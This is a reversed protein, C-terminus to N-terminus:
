WDFKDVIEKGVDFYQEIVKKIVDDGREGNTFLIIGRKSKPLLIIITHSGFDDGDHMIAFEGNSLDSMIDWGLGFSEYKTVYSQPRIMENYLEVSLGNGKMVDVAFKGYDAITTKLFDSASAELNKPIDIEQGSTDHPFAYRTIDIKNSWIYRTDSMDLPKFLVSDALEELTMKFKNQLANKLYEFGEGSYKFKTGPNFNFTLKKTKNRWRWNDFGSQHTLIHRTTLYFHNSDNVVDPDTWYKYIPEDLEWKGSSILKLTVMATVPKTLSAIQFISNYPAPKNEKLNGITLIQNLEGNNILGIGIAPVKYEKLWTQIKQQRVDQSYSFITISTILIISILHKIKM